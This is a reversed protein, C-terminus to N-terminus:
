FLIGGIVYRDLTTTCFIFHSSQCTLISPSGDILKVLWLDVKSGATLVLITDGKEM